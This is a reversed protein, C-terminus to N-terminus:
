QPDLDHLAHGIKNISREKPQVLEGAADFAGEEFFFRIQDGSDLFYDDTKRVQEDTSFITKVSGPEFGAVLADARARLEDCRTPDVFGHLVLYGDARYRALQEPTM